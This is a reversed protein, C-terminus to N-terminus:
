VPERRGSTASAYLAALARAQGLMDARGLRAPRASRIAAAFDDLELQYPDVGPIEAAFGDDGVLRTPRGAFADVLRLSGKSGIVEITSHASRFGSTLTAVLGDGFELIGNFQDDVGSRAPSAVGIAAIPERGALLRAASVCYTGVDMLSGGELERNLRIDTESGIVFSFTARITRLEGIRPLEDLFRLAHPTHRWMFGEVLVLDRADALDQAAEVKAARTTYPKECLVHKGAELARMTWVHHLSNPVNIYVADVAPDGLLAEYSGHATAIARERAAARAREETRSGIAVVDIAPSREAGPLFRNLIDGTGLIGLRVTAISPSPRTM